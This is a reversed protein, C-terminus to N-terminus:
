PLLGEEDLVRLVQQVWVVQSEIDRVVPALRHYDFVASALVKRIEQLDSVEVAAVTPDDSDEATQIMWIILRLADKATSLRADFQRADYSITAM